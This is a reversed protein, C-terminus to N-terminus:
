WGGGISIAAGGSSAAVGVHVRRDDDRHHTAWWWAGFGLAAAGVAYSTLAVARDREFRDKASAFAPDDTAHQNADARASSANVHFVAGAALVGGGVGVAVWAPWVVAPRPPPDHAIPAPPPTPPPTVPAAPAPPPVPEPEAPRSVELEVDLDARPAAVSLALQRTTYGDAEVIVPHGGPEVWIVSLGRIQVDGIRVTASPPSVHLTVPVLGARRLAEGLQKTLAETCWAPRAVGRLASLDWWLQARTLAGSRLYALALNCDHTASPWQLALPELLEIAQPYEQRRAYDQARAVVDAGATVAGAREPGPEIV